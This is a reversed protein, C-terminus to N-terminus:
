GDIQKDTQNDAKSGATNKWRNIHQVKKQKDTEVDRETEKTNIKPGQRLEKAFHSKPNSDKIGPPPPPPPPPPSLLSITGTCITLNNCGSM